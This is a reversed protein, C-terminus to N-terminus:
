QYEGGEVPPEMVVTLSRFKQDESRREFAPALMDRIMRRYEAMEEDNAYFHLTGFLVNDQRLDISGCSCYAEMRSMLNLIFGSFAAYFVDGRNEKICQDLQELEKDLSESLSYTKEVVARVKCESVTRIVDDGEMARLARDLSAQPITPDRALMQKATLPGQEKMMILLKRRLPNSFNVSLKAMDFTM